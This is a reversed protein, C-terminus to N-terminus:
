NNCGRQHCLLSLFSIWHLGIHIRYKRLHHPRNSVCHNGIYGLFRHIHEMSMRFTRHQLLHAHSPFRLIPTNSDLFFFRHISRRGYFHNRLLVIQDRHGHNDLTRSRAEIWMSWTLNMNKSRRFQIQQLHKLPFYGM